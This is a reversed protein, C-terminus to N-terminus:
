NGTLAFAPELSVSTAQALGYVRRVEAISALLLQETLFPNHVSTGPMLALERNYRAGEAVSTRGDGSNFESAPVRALLAGLEAALETTRGDARVKAARAITPSGHCGAGTCGQFDREEEACGSAATPRGQADVCPTAWFRHGTDRYVVAGEADTVTRGAAHCSACLTPNSAVSGHTAPVRGQLAPPRWGADGLLVGGQGAHPMGAFTVGPRETHCRMCLNEQASEAALSFRLNAPLDSGHPAHCVACTVAVRGTATPHEEAFDTDIGWARLAGDGSHCATCSASAGLSSLRAHRSIAWEELQPSEAGRHCEGCGTTLTTGVSLPAKPVTSGSPAAVHDLGPGHCAECQVDRYRPERTANFGSPVTAANGLENTSHRLEANADAGGAEQLTAWANAHGTGLWETHKELHCTGCFTLRAELNQYGVFGAAATPIEGPDDDPDEYVVKEDVCASLSCLALALVTTLAQSSQIRM